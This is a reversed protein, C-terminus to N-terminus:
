AYLKEFTLIAAYRMIFPIQLAIFSEMDSGQIHGKCQAHFAEHDKKPMAKPGQLVYNRVM